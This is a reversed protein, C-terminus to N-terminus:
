DVLLGQVTQLYLEKALRDAPSETARNGGTLWDEHMPHYGYNNMGSDAHEEDYFDWSEEAVLSVREIFAEHRSLVSTM